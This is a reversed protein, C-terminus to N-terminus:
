RCYSGGPLTQCLAAISLKKEESFVSRVARLCVPCPILGLGIHKVVDLAGVVGFPTLRRQAIETM